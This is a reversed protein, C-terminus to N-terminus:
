DASHEVLWGQGCRGPDILHDIREQSTM